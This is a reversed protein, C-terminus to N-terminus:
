CRETTVTKRDGFSNEKTVTTSDCGVSGTAVPRERIVVTDRPGRRASDEAASGALGGVGAGVAAGIPGGVLGGTVAGTVAGAAAGEQASALTPLALMTLAALGILTRRM